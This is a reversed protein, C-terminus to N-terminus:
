LRERMQECPELVTLGEPQRSTWQGPGIHPRLVGVAGSDMDTVIGLRATDEDHTLNGMRCQREGTM